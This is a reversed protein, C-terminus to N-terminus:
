IENEVTRIRKAFRGFVDFGKQTGCPERKPVFRRFCVEGYRDFPQSLRAKKALYRLIQREISRANGDRKVGFRM